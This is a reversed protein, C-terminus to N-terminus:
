RLHCFLVAKVDKNLNPELELAETASLIKAPVGNERARELLKELMPLQRDELAVTMTGCMEFEVDLDESVEKMMKNGKVNFIAKKTGPVPDYGSHVVASNAMSTVNGVDTEREIVLTDLKYRSLNRAIFSGIVGAGIVIVDRM